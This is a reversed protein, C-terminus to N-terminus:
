VEEWILENANIVPGQSCLKKFNNNKTRIVCAFCVGLCCAMREELSIILPINQKKAISYLSKLMPTPGCSYIIDTKLNQLLDTAIGKHGFTGNDTTIFINDAYKGFDDKLIIDDADRFGLYVDVKSDSISHRIFKSLELLPPVGIGGGVITFNKNDFDLDFGNGLPALIKVQSYLTSLYSTGKGQVRYVIRVAGKKTDIECISLPRPLLTSSEQLYVTCFQGCVANKAVEPCLLWMDYINKAIQTNQLIQSIYINKAKNLM